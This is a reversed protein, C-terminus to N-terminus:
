GVPVSTQDSRPLCLLQALAGNSVPRRKPTTLEVGIGPVSYNIPQHTADTATVTMLGSALPTMAGLKTSIIRAYGAPCTQSRVAPASLASVCLAFLITLFRRRM